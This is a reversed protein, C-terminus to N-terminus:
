LSSSSPSDRRLVSEGKGMGVLQHVIIKSADSRESPHVAHDSCTSSNMPRRVEYGPFLFFQFFWILMAVGDIILLIGLVRPLFGSKFVLYGLPFLWLNLLIQAIMFGNQFLNLFLMALAQLQDAQFVSLFDAGSLLLLAVYQFLECICWIAVGGLNLLVFLLALNKNVPKLIVYLAWASLFFLIATLLFSVFGIRFLWESGTIGQAAAAVDVSGVATSHVGNDALFFAVFHALYLLGAIRATRNISSGKVEATM